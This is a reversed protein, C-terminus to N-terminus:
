STNVSTVSYDEAQRPQRCEIIIIVKDMLRICVLLGLFDESKDTTDHRVNEGFGADELQHALPDSPFM